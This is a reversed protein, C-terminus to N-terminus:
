FPIEESTDPSPLPATATPITDLLHVTVLWSVDDPLTVQLRTWTHDPLEGTSPVVDLRHRLAWSHLAAGADDGHLQIDAMRNVGSSHLAALADFLRWYHAAALDFGVDGSM